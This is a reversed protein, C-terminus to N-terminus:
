RAPPPQVLNEYYARCERCIALHRRTRTLWDRIPVLEQYDARCAPCTALHRTMAASEDEDLAGLVFAALDDRWRACGQTM